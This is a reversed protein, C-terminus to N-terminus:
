RIVDYIKINFQMVVEETTEYEDGLHLTSNVTKQTLNLKGFDNFAKLLKDISFYRNM